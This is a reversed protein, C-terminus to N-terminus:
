LINRYLHIHEKSSAFIWANWLFIKIQFCRDEGHEHYKIWKFSWRNIQFVEAKPVSSCLGTITLFERSRKQTKSLSFPAPSIRWKISVKVACIWKIKVFYFSWLLKSAKAEGGSGLVTVYLAFVSTSVSNLRTSYPRGYFADKSLLASLLIASVCPGGVDKQPGSGDRSPSSNCHRGKRGGRQHKDKHLLLM